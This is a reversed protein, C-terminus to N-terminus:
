VAPSESRSLHPICYEEGDSAVRFELNPHSFETAGCVACRHLPEDVDRSQVDFRKRRSSVEKRHRAEYFIDRGFFILYNSLAVVLAIRYSTSNVFFGYFLLAASIWAVWKIKLPLIFFVYIVEDPYFRAFAYFLSAALFRNSFDAGFFWAAVTTGLMGILFYLTLRFPGFARELGEGIYWLFWLAFVIWVPHFTRPLFIYTFLRWIQGHRVAVPDLSLVGVYEPNLLALVFVLATFAVVIRILGPIALFGFRRELSNLWAM